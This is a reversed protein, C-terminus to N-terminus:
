REQKQMKFRQMLHRQFQSKDLDGLKEESLTEFVINSLKLSKEDIAFPVEFKKSFFVSRKVENYIFSESKFNPISVKYNETVSYNGDVWGITVINNNQAVAVQFVFLIILSVIKKM